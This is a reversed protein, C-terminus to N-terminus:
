SVSFRFILLSLLNSNFFKGCLLARPWPEERTIQALGSLLILVSEESFRGFAASPPESELDDSIGGDGRSRFWWIVDRSVSAPTGWSYM